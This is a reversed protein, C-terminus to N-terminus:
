VQDVVNKQDKALRRKEKLAAYSRRKQEAYKEPNAERWAQLRQRAIEPDREYKVGTAKRRERQAKVKEPNAERWAQLRERVHGKNEQYWKAANTKVQEKLETTTILPRNKNLCAHDDRVKDLEEREAKLLDRKTEYECERVLEITASDWGVNTFHAYVPIQRSKAKTSFSKHERLRDELSVTTSGIYFRGGGALRYIFGKMISIFSVIGHLGSAKREELFL